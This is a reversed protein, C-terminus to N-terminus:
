CALDELSAPRARRRRGPLRRPEAHEAPSHSVGTPNRVFLMATPIGAAALIGADHGAGTPLVPATASCRAALRDRLAADFTADAATWSEEVPARRRGGDGVAPSWARRVARGRGPGRADLWATVQRRSRTPATPSSGRGQRRHRARRARRAAARPRSCPPPSPSCRTTATPWGPPAPTTPRRRRPRAAVPRAALDRHGRRGRADATPWRGARSSTCSSSPASGAAADRRRPRARRPDLGAARWRRPWRRRRRRRAAGRARDPDLAGTLLRSGLAPSASGPARRTPSARRRRGAPAPAVGRSACCTSPPSRRSWASRATSPAATAAGLGPPQRDVCRRRRRGPRGVLGVPQRQPRDDVDLGAGRPRARAFWERLGLDADADLRVPPLRRHRTGASRRSTPGCGRRLSSVVRM